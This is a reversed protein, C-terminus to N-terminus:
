LHVRQSQCGCIHIKGTKENGIILWCSKDTNHQSYGGFVFRLTLRVVVLEVLAFLILRFLETVEAVETETYVKSM